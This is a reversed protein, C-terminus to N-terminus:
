SPDLNQPGFAYPLLESLSSEFIQGSKNICHVLCSPGFENIVQRCAGCPTAFNADNSAVVVASIHRIGQHVATTIANREACLALGYSANEVNSGSVITGDSCFIAAGVKYSSYPAYAKDLAARAAEYLSNWPIPNATSM